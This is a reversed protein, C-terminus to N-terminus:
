DGHYHDKVWVNGSNPTYGKKPANEHHCKSCVVPEDSQSSKSIIPFGCKECEFKLPTPM